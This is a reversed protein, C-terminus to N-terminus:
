SWSGFNGYAPVREFQQSIFRPFGRLQLPTPIDTDYNAGLNHLINSQALYVFYIYELGTEMIILKIWLAINTAALHMFGFRAVLGFREVLVQFRFSVM